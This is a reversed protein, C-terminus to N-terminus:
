SAWSCGQKVGDNWIRDAKDSYPKAAKTGTRKGAEAEADDLFLKLDSCLQRHAEVSQQFKGTNKAALAPTGFALPALFVVLLSLRPISM